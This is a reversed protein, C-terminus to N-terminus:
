PSSVAFSVFLGLVFHIGLTFLDLFVFLVLILLLLLGLVISLYKGHLPLVLVLSAKHAPLFSEM